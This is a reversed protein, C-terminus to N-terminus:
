AELTLAEITIRAVGDTRTVATIVLDALLHDRLAIEAEPVDALWRDLTAGAVAQLWLTHRAGVFTASAWRVWTADVITM